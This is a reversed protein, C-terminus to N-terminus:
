TLDSKLSVPSTSTKGYSYKSLQSCLNSRLCANTEGLKLLLVSLFINSLNLLSLLLNGGDRYTHNASQDVDKQYILVYVYM